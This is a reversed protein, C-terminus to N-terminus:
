VVEAKLQEWAVAYAIEKEHEIDDAMIIVLIIEDFFEMDVGAQKALEFAEKVNPPNLYMEEIRSKVLTPLKEAAKGSIFQEINERESPAIEGDCAAVSIGVACMAVIARFCDDTEQLVSALKEKLQKEVIDAEAKAKLYGETRARDKAGKEVREGLKSAATAGAVGAAGAVVGAGTLSALLSAGGLLSGGGTFPAAAVAAVGVVGGVAAKGPNNKVTEYTDGAFDSASKYADGATEKVYDFTEGATEGVSDIASDLADSLKRFFGM